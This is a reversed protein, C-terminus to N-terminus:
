VMMNYIIVAGAGVGAAVLMRLRNTYYGKTAEDARIYGSIAALCLLVFGLLGGMTTLRYQVLERNYTAILEARHGSSLDVTLDTEYVTGYDKETQRVQSGVVMVELLQAPPTWSASVEPALWQVVRERLKRRAENNAREETASILGTVVEPQTPAPAAALAPPAPPAPPPAPGESIQVVLGPQDPCVPPVPEAQTVLTGPVIPVPLGDVEVRPGSSLPPSPGPPAPSRDESVLTEDEAQGLEERVERWAHRVENRAEHFARQVERRAHDVAKQAQAIAQSAQRKAHAALERGKAADHEHRRAQWTAAPRRLAEPRKTSRLAWWVLLVVLILLLFRKMDNLGTEM